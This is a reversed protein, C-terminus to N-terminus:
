EVMRILLAGRMGRVNKENSNINCMTAIRSYEDNDDSTPANLAFLLAYYKPSNYCKVTRYLEDVKNSSPNTPLQELYRAPLYKSNVLVDELTCAHSSNNTAVWSYSGNGGQCRALGKADIVTSGSSGYGWTSIESDLNSVTAGKRIAWEETAKAIKSAGEKIKQDKAYSQVQPYAVLTITALIGIVVIIIVLEVVSFARSHRIMSM